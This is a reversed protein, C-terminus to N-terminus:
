GVVDGPEFFRRWAETAHDAGTLERMGRDMMRKVAEHCISHDARVSEPHRVEVVRGPLPYEPKRIEVSRGTYPRPEPADRNWSPFAKRGLWTLAGGGALGAAAGLLFGRRTTNGSVRDSPLPM